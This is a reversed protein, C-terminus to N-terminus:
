DARQWSDTVLNFSRTEPLSEHLKSEAAQLAYVESCLEEASEKISQIQPALQQEINRELAQANRGMAAIQELFSEDDDNPANGASIFIDGVAEAVAEELAPELKRITPELGRLEGGRMFVRNDNQYMNQTVEGKIDAIAELLADPPGDKSFTYFVETVATLGIEVGELVIAVIKPITARVQDAYERVIQQEEKGLVLTQGAVSLSNNKNIILQKGTDDSVIIEDDSVSVDGELGPECAHSNTDIELANAQVAIVSMAAYSILLIFIANNM